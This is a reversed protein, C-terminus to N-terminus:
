GELEIRAGVVLGNDLTAEGEFHVEVDQKFVYNRLDGEDVFPDDFEEHLHGGAAAMYRGGITLQVGDAALAAGIGLAASMLASSGLLIVRM